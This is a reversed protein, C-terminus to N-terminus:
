DNGVALRATARVALPPLTLTVIPRQGKHMFFRPPEGNMQLITDAFALTQVKEIAELSEEYGEIVKRPKGNKFYRHVSVVTQASEVHWGLGKLDSIHPEFQSRSCRATEVPGAANYAHAAM